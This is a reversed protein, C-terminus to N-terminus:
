DLQMSVSCRSLQLIHFTMIATADYTPGLGEYNVTYALSTIRFTMLKLFPIWATTWSPYMSIRQLMM